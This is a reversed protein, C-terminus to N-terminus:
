SYVQFFISRLSKLTFRQAYQIIAESPYAGKQFSSLAELLASEDGVEIQVGLDVNNIETLGGCQSYIAPIGTTWAEALVVSFTEYNSFLVFCDALRMAEGICEAPKRGEVICKEKPINHLAIAEWVESEEGETILHLIFDRDLQGFASLMGSINKHEDNFSSVHLFRIAQSHKINKISPYFYEHDVVNHMVQYKSILALQQLSKGLHDSVPLVLDSARFISRFKKKIYFPYQSYVQHHPLFGTWHVTIIYNLQHKSKLWLAFMGAPFVANLHVLDYKQNLLEFGQKLAKFYANKKKLSSAIPVTFEIKPYYVIVTRVGNIVEDSIEVSNVEDTSVAYLVDVHAVDNAVEAHKQVFNGLSLNKKSPYWSALFLVKKNLREQM